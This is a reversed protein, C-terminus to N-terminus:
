LYHSSSFLIIVYIIYKTSVSSRLMARLAAAAENNQPIAGNSARVFAQIRGQQIEQHANRVSPNNYGRGVARPAFQGQPLFAPRGEHVGGYRGRKNNQQRRRFYFNL